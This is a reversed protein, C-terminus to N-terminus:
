SSLVHVARRSVLSNLVKQLQERRLRQRRIIEDEMQEDPIEVDARNILIRANRLPVPTAM